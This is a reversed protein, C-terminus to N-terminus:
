MGPNSGVVGFGLYSNTILPNYADVQASGNSPALIVGGTWTQRIEVRCSNDADGWTGPLHRGLANTVPVMNGVSLAIEQARAAPLLAWVLGAALGLARFHFRTKM